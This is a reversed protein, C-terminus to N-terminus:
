RFRYQFEAGFTRPATLSFNHLIQQPIPSGAPATGAQLLTGTSGDYGNSDLVNNIFAIVSYRNDKDTWTARLNWLTYDPSLSYPRNFVSGYTAGKWIVTTSLILKGPDFTFTYLGNFSIKDPTAEPLTQGVINQALASGGRTEQIFKGPNAPDPVLCGNINAGPVIALPDVTDEFCQGGTNAVTASLHSYQLSLALPDIPRWTGELEVGWIHVDQFNFLTGVLLGASNQVTLPIQDNKYDDYFLAGNVTLTRGFTKKAGLEYADVFEAHTQPAATTLAFTTYGGSKYGRSYKFYALLSPDPTWDIGADGTVAAWTGNLDRRWFGTSPVFFAASAGQTPTLCIPANTATKAPCVLTRTVDLAQTAGGFGTGATSTNQFGATNDFTEFRWLQFGVKHDSTYRVAGEFKFQDNFKYDFQAFVAYSNYTLVTNSESVASEDNKPALCLPILAGNAPCALGNGQTAIYVPNALQTQRPQVGASVPQEYKERYWYLGGLWQFPGANTSTFDLEHSFFHDVEAFYTTSPEPFITLPTTCAAPNYGVSAANATCTASATTPAQLQYSTIGPNTSGTFNLQYNFAQWGALYTVDFGPAHWTLNSNFAWDYRLANQSTFEEIFTRDNVNTPNNGPFLNATVPATTVSVVQNLTNCGRGLAVGPTAATGLGAGIDNASGPFGPLGCLGYYANPTFAGNAFLNVPYTGVSAITRYGQTVYNQDYLKAWWEVNNALNADIQGEVYYSTGANGQPGDGGQSPGILNKFYGQTQSTYNGGLRVRVNDNLPGSVVAEGFYKDYNAAGARAEAYFEHTPKKSIYNITGGDANSGHLANQPGRDVEVTDIFLDDKQLITNANAGDYIGDYYIAVASATALNDTNRGIGRLYPRNAISNYNLGPTFDSIDQISKIGVLSRQQASFASVAVPVSEINEERKEAVVTLEGVVGPTTADATAEATAAFAPSACLSVAVAMASGGCLFATKLV